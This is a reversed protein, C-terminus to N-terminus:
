GKWGVRVAITYSYFLRGGEARAHVGLANRGVDERVLARFRDADGPDPASAAMQEDVDWETRYGAAAVRQLGAQAFLADVEEVLLARVHSPDKFKELYNFGAATEPDTVMDILCVRGGPACVRVLEAFAAQPDTLHHFSYRTTVLSFAGDAYPLHYVDGLHWRLNTLGKEAQLARARDLMAPTLDIGTVERAVAAFACALLGPGCAVDLVTDTQGVETIDRLLDFQMRDPAAMKRAFPDAQKTFQERLRDDHSADQAM